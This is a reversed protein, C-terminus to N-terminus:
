KIYNNLFVRYLSSDYCDFYQKLSIFSLNHNNEDLCVKNIKFRINTYGNYQILRCLSHVLYTPNYCDELSSIVFTLNNFYYMLNLIDPNSLTKTSFHIVDGVFADTLNINLDKLNDLLLTNNLLLEFNGLFVDNTITLRSIISSDEFTFRSDLIYDLPYSFDTYSLEGCDDEMFVVDIDGVFSRSVLVETGVLEIFKPTVYLTINAIDEFYENLNNFLTPNMFNYKDHLVKGRDLTIDLGYIGTLKCFLSSTKISLTLSISGFVSLRGYEPSQTLLSMIYELSYSLRSFGDNMSMFNAKFNNINEYPTLDIIMSKVGNM